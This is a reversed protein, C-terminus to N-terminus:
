STAYLVNSKIKRWNMGWTLKYNQLCHRLNRIQFAYNKNYPRNFRRYM